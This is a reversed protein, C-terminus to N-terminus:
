PGQERTLATRHFEHCTTSVSRAHQQIRCRTWLIYVVCRTCAYACFVLKTRNEAIPSSLLAISLVARQADIDHVVLSYAVLPEALHLTRCRRDRDYPILDVEILVVKSGAARNEIVDGRVAEKM